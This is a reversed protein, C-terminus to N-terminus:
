ENEYVKAKVDIWGKESKRDTKFTHYYPSAFTLKNEKAFRNM